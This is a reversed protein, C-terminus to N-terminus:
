YLNGIKPTSCKEYFHFHIFLVAYKPLNKQVLHLEKRVLNISM